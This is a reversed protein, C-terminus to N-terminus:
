RRQGKSNHFAKGLQERGGTVGVLTKVISEGLMYLPRQGVYEFNKM